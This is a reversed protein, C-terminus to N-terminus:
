ILSKRKTDSWNCAEIISRMPKGFIKESQARIDIITSDIGFEKPLKGSFAVVKAGYKNPEQLKLVKIKDGQTIKPVKRTLKLKDVLHNHFLAGKVHEPTGKKYPENPGSYYKDLGNATSAGAIEEPTYKGNLCDMKFTHVFTQIDKEEGDLCIMIGEKLKEKALKPTSSRQTEIGTIKLKPYSYRVGEEDWILFAYRKKGTYIGSEIIKERKMHMKNEICNMESSLEQYSKDIFPDLENKCFNDIFDIVINKNNKQEERTFHLNVYSGLTLHISDTDGAAIYNKDVTNSKDNLFKNVKSIIYKIVLQGSLTIAESVRLDYYRFYECGLAGYISNLQTKKALQLNKYKTVEIDCEEYGIDTEKLAALRKEAILMKKKYEKRDAFMQKQIDPMLGVFENSFFHGNGAVCCNNKIAKQKLGFELGNAVTSDIDLKNQFYQWKFTDPSINFQMQLHPYLSTLDCTIVWKFKGKQTPAVHAGAFSSDKHNEKMPPIVLKKEKAHKFVIVDVMVTQSNVDSYNCTADYATALYLSIFELKKDILYVLEVDKRGYAAFLNFNEKYLKTLTGYEAYDVKEDGLEVGAIYNLAYSEQTANSHPIKQYIQMYDITEIGILEYTNYKKFKDKASVKRIFGWPSLNKTIDEGLLKNCRNVIYPIDFSRINWGSIIDPDYKRWFQIFKILLDHEDKCKLYLTDSNEPSYDKLGFLVYKTTTKVSIFVIPQAALEPEPFEADPDDSIVEIDIFATKVLNLEPDIGDNTDVLYAYEFSRLGHYSVGGSALERNRNIADKASKIDDFCIPLMHQKQDIVSKYGTYEDSPVFLTPQYHIKKQVREKTKKNYGRYWVSNGYSKVSTYQLNSSKQMNM